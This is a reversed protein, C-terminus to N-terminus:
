WHFLFSLVYRACNQNGVMSIVDRLRTVRETDLGQITRLVLRDLATYTGIRVTTTQRIAHIETYKARLAKLLKANLFAVRVCPSTTKHIIHIMRACLRNKYNSPREMSNLIDLLAIVLVYEVPKNENCERACLYRFYYKQPIIEKSDYLYM